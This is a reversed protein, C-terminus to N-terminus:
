EGPDFLIIMGIAGMNAFLMPAMVPAGRIFREGVIVGLSTIDQMIHLYSGLMGTVILLIMTVTYTILDSRIPAAIVGLSIVVVTAFVGIVIPIWVYPNVFGGRAHDLASSLTTILVGLGVLFFYARAKSLPLQWHGGNPLVLRGSGAPDEQWAASLGLIGVLAFTIPGLLPPAWVLIPLSVAEGFPADPLLARRLHYYSGLVGVLICALFIISGTINALMRKRLSILGIVLLIVGAAPGFFIPIWEGPVITGSISHALYTEVGIMILNVAMMLLMWQDRVLPIRLRRVAPVVTALYYASM